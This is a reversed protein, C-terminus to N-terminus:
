NLRLIKVEQVFCGSFTLISLRYTLFFVKTYIIIHASICLVCLSFHTGYTDCAMPVMLSESDSSLYFSLYLNSNFESSNPYSPFKFSSSKQYTNLTYIM